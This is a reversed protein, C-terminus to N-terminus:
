SQSSTCLLPFVLFLEIKIVKLVEEKNYDRFCEFSIQLNNAKCDFLIGESKWVEGGEEGKGENQDQQEPANYPAPDNDDDIRIWIWCLIAMDEETTNMMQGSPLVPLNGEEDSGNIKKEAETGHILQIIDRECDPAETQDFLCEEPGEEM